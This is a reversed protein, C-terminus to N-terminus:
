PTRGLAREAAKVAEVARREVFRTERAYTSAPETANAGDLPRAARASHRPSCGRSRAPPGVAARRRRARDRRKELRGELDRARRFATDPRIKCRGVPRRRTSCSPTAPTGTTSRRASGDSSRMAPASCRRRHSTGRVQAEHEPCLISSPGGSRSTRRAARWGRSAHGAVDVLPESGNPCRTTTSTRRPGPTAPRTRGAPARRLRVAQLRDAAAPPRQHDGRDARRSASTDRGPRQPRRPRRRQKLNTHHREVTLDVVADLLPHGPAILQALPMGQARVREREFTVREYAPLCRAAWASSGTATASRGPCTPSRTAAPRADAIRGGLRAFAELFFSEIYHPQLRRAQAEEMRLRMEDVDARPSSRATCLASPWSSRSARSRRHRRHGTSGPASRPSTATASRRSCCLGRLPNNEFAEGLVDFVKGGYAKRQEEIKDLLRIFVEGERTDSAVLNWLHCVETQGIRHIRGFRQEIRNPNWPLDYNVM